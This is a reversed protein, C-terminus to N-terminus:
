QFSLIVDDYRTDWAGKTDALFLDGAILRTGEADFRFTPPLMKSAVVVGDYALDVKKGPVDIDLRIAYWRKPELPVSAKADTAAASGGDVGPRREIIFGYDDGRLQVQVYYDGFRLAFIELDATGREERVGGLGGGGDPLSAAVVATALDLLRRRHGFDGRRERELDDM